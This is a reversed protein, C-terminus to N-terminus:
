KLEHLLDMIAKQCKRSENKIKNFPTRQNADPMIEYLRMQFHLSGKEFFNNVARDTRRKWESLRDNALEVDRDNDLDSILDVIERLAGRLVSILDREIGSPRQPAPQHTQDLTLQPASELSLLVSGGERKIFRQLLAILRNEDLGYTIKDGGVIDGAVDGIPGTIIAPGAIQDSTKPPPCM